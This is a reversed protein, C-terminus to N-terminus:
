GPLSLPQTRNKRPQVPRLAMLERALEQKRSLAVRADQYLLRCVDQPLYSGRFTVRFISVAAHVRTFTPVHAAVFARYGDVMMRNGCFGTEWKWRRKGHRDKDLCKFVWGDGDVCGRWYHRMLEPPGEWPRVTFTKNPTIGHRALDRVIRRSSIALSCSRAGPKFGTLGAVHEGIPADSGLLGAITVLVPRDSAQFRFVLQSETVAGDTAILGLLWAKEETDIDEFFGDSLSRTQHHTRGTHPRGGRERVARLVVEDSVGYRSGILGGREGAFYDAAARDAQTATLQRRAESVRKLTRLKHAPCPRLEVGEAILIARVTAPHIGHTRGLWNMARGDDRYGTIVAVRKKAPITSGNGKSMICEAPSAGSM